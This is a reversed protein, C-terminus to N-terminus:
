KGQRRSDVSYAFQAVLISLIAVLIHYFAALPYGHKGQVVWVIAGSFSFVCNGLCFFFAWEVITRM